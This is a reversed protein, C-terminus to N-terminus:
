VMVPRASVQIEEKIPFRTIIVHKDRVAETAAMYFVDCWTLDRQILASSGSVNGNKMDEASVEKGTFRARVMDGNTTPIEIPSFRDSYGKVFRKMEKRIREDSFTELPDKITVFETKGTKKNITSYQENGHFNNEFFRKVHFVIFPFFNTIASALPLACYDMDVMLDDLAEVKLEPASIILRSGYDATKGMVASKVYGRKSSLGIGADPDDSTGSLINYIDLITEQVRGRVAESVNLGYEQTEKLSRASIILSAYHKNLSGVGVKGGSNTEVDRYYAPIVMFKKIFMKNRNSMLFKIKKDRQRSETSRIKINNINKRLFEMGNEGNESEVFDGNEIIFKKTGHAIDKIRSDMRSWVKYCLPHMYTDGLDIYGFTNSREEKTIGFIQNSLLGDTSPIGERVFFIPNTIPEIQNKKIFDEDDLLEVELLSTGKGAENLMIVDSNYNDDIYELMLNRLNLSEM